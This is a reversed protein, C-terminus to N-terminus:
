KQYGNEKFHRRTHCNRCRIECKEIEKQVVKLTFTKRNFSGVEFKKIGRVHDFTLVIIDPEGCDICPHEQLYERIFNKIRTARKKNALASRVIQKERDFEKYYNRQHKRDCDRCRRNLGDKRSSKKNFETKPKPQKCDICQKMSILKTARSLISSEETSQFDVIRVM